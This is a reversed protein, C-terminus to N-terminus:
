GGWGGKDLPTGNIRCNRLLLKRVDTAQMGRQSNISVNELTINEFPRDPLATLEIAVAAHECTVDKIHINRVLPPRDTAGGAGWSSYFANFTIAEGAINRMQINEYWIDEVVGGRGRTSKIRLGRDTGHMMCDHAYVNRVGGSMESGIVVGGHGREMTCHRIVVNETPRGVRWGDENLGSKLALCDDGTNFTCYEILANLCSDLNIGDNNPGPGNQFSDITVNRIVVNECYICQITWFPGGNLSIGEILVDKCNIPSIFQPRMSGQSTGFVREEVPTGSRGMEMLRVMAAQQGQRSWAWWPNGQGDLKGTGTIAINACDRAYILPSYNWCEFGAWRTFVPPLYDGPDTSFRLVAGASLHLEINSQLHIAGSLWVGEPVLVRGGGAESCALIARAIARTNLRRGDGVAGHDRIDITRDPFVPRQLQPMAFPAQIPAVDPPPGASWAVDAAIIALCIWRGLGRITIM